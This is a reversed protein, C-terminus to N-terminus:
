NGEKPKAQETGGPTGVQEVPVNPVVQEPAAAAPAVPEPAPVAAPAAPESLAKQKEQGAAPRRSGSAVDFNYVVKAFLRVDKDFDPNKSYEVDLGVKLKETLEYGAALTASYASTVDNIAEKYKVDLLDVAVDLKQVKKSAYVRYEDYKLRNTEGDMRHISVGASYSRPLNYTAKAGYYDASGAIDYSYKKYDASVAWNDSIKYFIEEGLIDVKENPDIPGGPTMTFVSSTTGAFYDAYNIRSAETNLRLKDFPGLMLYYAHEMWGTTEVNYSSRGMIEVKNVPRLWLDLGEEERFNLSNKEQKLYSLGITYLGTMQHSLRAGYITNNGPADDGTEVPAGGFASIGFGGIIDTRAYIGDIREAAVGEFVMVRGLNVTANHEKARYSVYGYQLDSGKKKDNGFSDNSLDYGLWGGFHASITEKGLDQVNFNLYEYLPMMNTGAASERFLVYTRSTGSLDAAPSSMPAIVALVLFLFATSSRILSTRASGIIQFPDYRKM